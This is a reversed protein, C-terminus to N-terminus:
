QAVALKEKRWFRFLFAAILLVTLAGGARMINAAFVVYAGAQPDYHFCYLLVRDVSFSWKSEGAEALALRLDRPSFHIGYLYRSVRGEPTLVM